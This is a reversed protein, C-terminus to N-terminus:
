LAKQSKKVPQPRWGGYGPDRASNLLAPPPSMPAPLGRGKARARARQLVARRV